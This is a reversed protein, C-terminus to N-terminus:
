NCSNPPFASGRRTARTVSSLSVVGIFADCGATVCQCMETVPLTVPPQPSLFAADLFAWMGDIRRIEHYGDSRFSRLGFMELFMVSCRGGFDIDKRSGTFFCAFSGIWACVSGAPGWWPKRRLDPELYARWAISGYVPLGDRLAQRLLFVVSEKEEKFM